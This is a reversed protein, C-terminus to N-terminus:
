EYEQLEKWPRFVGNEDVDAEAKARAREAAQTGGCVPSYECWECREAGTTAHFAGSSIIEVIRRIAQGAREWKRVRRAVRRGEGKETLFLYGSSEVRAEPDIGSERLIAEAARAYVAHQIQTGKKVYGREEYGSASGTKYDWVAYSHGDAAEIRDIRDIRGKVLVRSGDPLPLALPDPLRLGQWGFPTELLVPTMECAMEQHVRTFVRMSRRMSEAVSEYVLEGPPPAENRYAAIVEGAIDMVRDERLECGRRGLVEELCRRYIDHLVQGRAIADLWRGPDYEIDRPCEIGLVRRLFYYFPCSALDELASASHVTAQTDQTHLAPAAGAPSPQRAGVLGDYVTLLGSDRAEQAKLGADMLPYARRVEDLGPEPSDGGHLVSLWWEAGTVADGPPPAYAVPDGLAEELDGYGAQSNHSVVRYAQLMIPSPFCPRSETVDYCSYSLSVRGRRSALFEAVDRLRRATAGSRLALAPRIARREVDLLVPDQLSEGPLSSADMGVVFTNPRGDWGLGSIGTVHLHGPLPRSAGVRLAEIEARIRSVAEGMPLLDQPAAEACYDLAGSIAEVASADLDGGVRSRRRALVQLGLCLAKMSIRGPEGTEPIHSLIDDVMRALRERNADGAGDRLRAYRGRGWGVCAERLARAMPAPSEVDVDGSMLLRRLVSAPYDQEVWRLLALVVRGPRTWNAPVGEGFTLPVGLVAAQSLFMPIYVPGSSYVAVAADVPIGEAVLRRFVHRVENAAGYARSFRVEVGAHDRPVGDPCYLWSLPSLLARGPAPREATLDFRLGPSEPAGIAPDGALVVRRGDSLGTLFEFALPELELTEPILYVPGGGTPGGPTRRLAELGERCAEADDALMGATLGAEYAALVDRIEGGKRPDVFSAPGLDSARIGAMRMERITDLLVPAPGTPSRLRDLYHLAGRRGLDRVAEEVLRASRGRTIRCVGRRALSPAAAMWALDLATSPRLNVWGVGELALAELAQHGALMSPAMLIKERSPFARCAEMLEEIFINM